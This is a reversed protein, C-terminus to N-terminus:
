LRAKTYIIYANLLEQGFGDWNLREAELLKLLNEKVGPKCNKISEMNSVIRHMMTEAQKEDVNMTDDEAM